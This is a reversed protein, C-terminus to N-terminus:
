HAPNYFLAAAGLIAIDPEDSVEIKLKKITEEYPFNKLKEFMTKKFFPYAEAMRGGIIIIEPDIAFLITKIANGLDNGFHEFLAIAIKDKDRARTLFEIYKEGYKKEFFNESCYYEYDHDRYPISGFEGAGCNHGSYLQNNTIIGCGLGIGITLGVVNAYNQAKGFYKQGLAFCNADNNVSVQIGFRDEIIQKLYVKHWSPINLPNYVIGQYVDVLSPVGIGIGSVEDSYVEEISNILEKLIEEQPAFNNITKLTKKAVKGSKIRGAMLTKGGLYVGITIQETDFQQYIM